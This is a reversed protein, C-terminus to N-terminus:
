FADRLPAKSTFPYFFKDIKATVIEVLSDDKYNDVSYMHLM